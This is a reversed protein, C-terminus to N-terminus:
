REEVRVFYIGNSLGRGGEYMRGWIFVEIGSADDRVKALAEGAM